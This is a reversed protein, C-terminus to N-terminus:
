YPFTCCVWADLRYSARIGALPSVLPYASLLKFKIVIEEQVSIHSLKFAFGGVLGLHDM